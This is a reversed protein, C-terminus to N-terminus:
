QNYTTDPTDASPYLLAQHGLKSEFSSARRNSACMLLIVSLGILISGQICGVWKIYYIAAQAAYVSGRFKDAQSDTATGTDELWITPCLLSSNVGAFWWEAFPRLVLVPRLHVNVQLRKAANMTIGTTPEVDVITDHIAKDPISLGEVQESVELDAGMFHPKSIFIPVHQPACNSINIVGNWRDMYYDWNDPNLATSQMLTPAIRFRILDINKMTVTENDVNMMAGERYLTDIWTPLTSGKQVGPPFQTADTGYIRSAEATRWAM